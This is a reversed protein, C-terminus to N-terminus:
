DVFLFENSCLIVQALQEWVDLRAATAAPFDSTSNWVTSNEPDTQVIVANWQFQDSNLVENIDVVFDVTEGQKVALSDINIVESQQHITSSKLIGQTSSVIFVRIGDGVAPQHAVRTQVAIRMERPATWRRIAAVGRDNGPHGGTATLQVWGLKADPWKPGGQWSTGTFHPLPTFTRLAQSTEDLAGYGYCWDGATAPVSDIVPNEHGNLWTVVDAIETSSPGRQYARRFMQTAVERPDDNGADVRASTALAAARELVMPHNMFFLTQQPVTTENRQSVHLDPNAFDFVRLASALYQRDVLGYITRRAPFPATFLDSPYGGLSVDLSDSVRWLSDRLEEFTLRRPNARWLFRNRPDAQSHRQAAQADHSMASSQQYTASLVITRHLQKLSWNERILLTALWDLLEPHSPPESRLGFDSPTTVLGAGFHHAWVRNVIVRATLPNTPAIIANALELRGSGIEFPKQNSDSLASLFQRPVEDGLKLPDGRRFIRPEVPQKQDTLTVAVPVKKADILWRDVKAQLKWLETLTNTDFFTECHSIPGDPVMWPANKLFQRLSEADYDQTDEDAKSFLDAYRDCVERFTRPATAFSAAVISHPPPSHNFLQRTVSDALLEFNAPEIGAYAHWPVFIPDNALRSRRLQREWSRVFAPLLDSKEFIQDFGDAPYKQLESQAFLYDATRARARESSERRCQQLKEHLTTQRKYLEERFAHDGPSDDLVSQQELCSDFVGYLSYYDATPIPDFKHDHCRACNVTLGMTGRCVTDIRDDIVDRRVGLFRRGLTLFGIAALDGPMADGVQDAALQLLLFRDYPMDNNLSKVVWDRYTWAHTWFREERDYVYGKTDAYRAVDLWHRGWHEGYHPSALLREVLNEYADAETDAVFQKVEEPTPPLGTLSYTLRRILTRRDARPSPTLGREAHTKAIWADVPTRVWTPDAVVPIEPSSIPLFAWHDKGADPPKTSHTTSEVPWVAGSKVWMELSRIDREPLPRDPPMKLDGDRRVVRLLLSDDDGAIIAPDTDGGAVLAERSDVRLGGEQKTAGHCGSCQEVLVPRVHQEFFIERDSNEEMSPIQSQALPSFAVCLFLVQLCQRPRQFANLM